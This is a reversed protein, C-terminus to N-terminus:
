RRARVEVLVDERRQADRVVRDVPGCVDVDVEGVVDDLGGAHLLQDVREAHAAVQHGVDVRELVPLARVGVELDAAVAEGEPVEVALEDDAAEAALARRQQAVDEAHQAVRVAAGIPMSYMCMWSGACRASTGPARELLRVLLGVLSSCIRMRPLSLSASANSVKRCVLYTPWFRKLRSPPSDVIASSSSRDQLTRGLGAEVLDRDAHGVAAAEVHQGVDGALGVALDEALELARLVRLGHLAGAVHLVVEAGLAGERRADPM